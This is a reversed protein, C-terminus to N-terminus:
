TAEHLGLGFQPQRRRRDEVAPSPKRVVSGLEIFKALFKAIGQGTVKIGEQKLKRSVDGPKLGQRHYYNTYYMGLNSARATTTIQTICGWTQPGPPPLLKHLVDGPKLGQRHYYNTYYMGLNSARATTTIQTICGWTQPGPPPLLKHLRQVDNSM